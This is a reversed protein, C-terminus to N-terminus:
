IVSKRYCPRLRFYLNQLDYGYYVSKILNQARHMTGSAGAETHYVGAANWEFYSTIRGDIKPTIFDVPPEVRATTRKPKIAVFLSEPVKAGLLTYVNM